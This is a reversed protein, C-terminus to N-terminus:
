NNNKAKKFLKDFTIEDGFFQFETDSSMKRMLHFEDISPKFKPIFLSRNFLHWKIHIQFQLLNCLLIKKIFIFNNTTKAKNHMARTFAPPLINSDFLYCILSMGNINQLKLTTKTWEGLDGLAILLNSSSKNNAIIELQFHVILM